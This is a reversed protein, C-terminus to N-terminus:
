RTWERVEQEPDLPIPPVTVATVATVNVPTEMTSQGANTVTTGTTVAIGSTHTYREWADVFDSREFGKYTIPGDRITHPRVGYQKLLRAMARTDMPKGRLDGWPSEEMLCLSETLQTSPMKDKNIHAFVTQIDSLLRVGISDDEKSSGGSLEVAAERATDVWGHGALESIALLPEWVDAARGDLEDPILPRADTLSEIAEESWEALRERLTGVATLAERRRFREVQEGRKQRKMNIPVSRDRITDPLSGIGALAKPAFVSFDKTDIEGGVKVCVTAVGGRRYGENLMGRLAESYEKDGKFAADTEDLLLTPVEKDVKRMLAAATVRGTFWPRAVLLACMELLRTKGSQKEASTISIYPTAEAARFAYTHAVWLTIATMQAIDLNVYRLILAMIENLLEHLELPKGPTLLAALTYSNGGLNVFDVADGKPPADAWHVLKPKPEGSAEIRKSIADMHADGSEDNDPWPLVHFGRLSSIAEDSPPTNAGTITAVAVVSLGVLADCAPEGETVVVM